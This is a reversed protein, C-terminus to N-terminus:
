LVDEKRFGDVGTKRRSRRGVREAARSRDLGLREQYLRSAERQKSRAYYIRTTNEDRHGLHRSAVSLKDPNDRLYLEASIHRFQHPTVPVGM